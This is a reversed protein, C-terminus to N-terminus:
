PAITMGGDVTLAHGVVYSAGPSCLWLVVSAIEEPRGARGIPVNKAIEAYAREDGSVVDRAIQTDILGPNVANVRIGHKIYELAATRTLGVVGHKSAIYSGIGPNGTLAGVSANNVIAGSGQRVMHRLQHKMCSWVGRLNIGIVRDWEERTSDATPAIRAMVGANNFAADLRGFHSVTRDVMAAVQADDSVDCGFAIAKHGAATLKEAEANVPDKRFDALVVAAGAEAFAQATALGMGSAAGTVLAVKNAFPKNM